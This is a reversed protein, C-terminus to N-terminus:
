AALSAYGSPPCTSTAFVLSNFTVRWISPRGAPTHWLFSWHELTFENPVFSGAPTNTVTDVFLYIYMLVLPLSLLSLGLIVPWTRLNASM